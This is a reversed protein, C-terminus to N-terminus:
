TSRWASSAPKRSLTYLAYTDRADSCPSPPSLAGVISRM